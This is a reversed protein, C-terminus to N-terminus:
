SEPGARSEAMDRHTRVKYSTRPLLFTAVATAIGVGVLVEFSLDLRSYDNLIIAGIVLPGAATGGTFGLGWVLANGVSTKGTPAYDLVLSLFLPFSNLALFGFASLLVVGLIGSSFLYALIALAAGATSFGLVRRRDFRDTLAGLIPQGLIAAAYLATLNLGLEPGVGLAKEFTLYVPIWVGINQISVSSLFAIATLMVMPGTLADRIRRPEGGSPSLRVRRLGVWILGSAVLGAAGFSSAASSYTLLAAAAIFFSPYLARGLNGMSGNIGLARGQTGGPFTSQLVAAGLPHYFAGGLGMVLACALAGIFLLTGAAYNMALGFGMMGASIIAVGLGVLPGARGTRDANEAVFVSFLASSGSFAFLLTTVELPALGNLKALVAVILSMFITSGDNVFHGLSTFVLNRTRSNAM